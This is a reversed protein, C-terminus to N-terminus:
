NDQEDPTKTQVPAYDPEVTRGRFPNVYNPIFDTTEVKQRIKKEEDKVIIKYDNIEVIESRPIILEPDLFSKLTPRQVIIQQVIFDNDTCTFGIVKGLKHGKKSEVKLGTLTFDLDLVKKITLVDDRGVFDDESDVIMGIPSFERVSRIDLINENSNTAVGGRLKFGIIKLDDPSIIPADTWAITGGAQLSLVPTGQLKSSNILM